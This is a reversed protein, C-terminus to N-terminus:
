NFRYSMCRATYDTYIKNSFRGTRCPRYVSVIRVSSNRPKSYDTWAITFFDNSLYTFSFKDQAYNLVM